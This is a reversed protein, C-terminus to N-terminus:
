RDDSKKLSKVRLKILAHGQKLSPKKPSTEDAWKLFENCKELLAENFDNGPGPEDEGALVNECHEKITTCVHRGAEIASIAEKIKGDKM